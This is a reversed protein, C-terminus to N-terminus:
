EGMWHRRHNPLQVEGQRRGRRLVVTPDCHDIGPGLPFGWAGEGDM